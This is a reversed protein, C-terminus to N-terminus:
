SGGRGAGGSRPAPRPPIPAEPLSRTGRGPGSPSALAHLRPGSAAPARRMAPDQARTAAGPRPRRVLRRKARSRAHPAAGDRSAHAVRSRRPAVTRAIPRRSRSRVQRPHRRRALPHPPRACDLMQISAATRAIARPADWACTAARLSGCSRSFVAFARPPGGMPSASPALARDRLHPPRRFSASRAPWPRSRARRFVSLAHRNRRSARPAGARRRRPTADGAGRRSLRRGGADSRRNRSPDCRRKPPRQARAQPGCRSASAPAPARGPATDARPRQASRARCARAPSRSCATWM